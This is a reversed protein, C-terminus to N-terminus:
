APPSSQKAWHIGTVALGRRQLESVYQRHRAAADLSAQIVRNIEALDGPLTEAGLWSMDKSRLLM